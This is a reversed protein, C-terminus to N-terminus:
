RRRSIKTRLFLRSNNLRQESPSTAASAGFFAQRAFARKLLVSASGRFLNKPQPGMRGFAKIAVWIFREAERGGASKSKTRGCSSWHARRSRV